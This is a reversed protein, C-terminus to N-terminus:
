SKKVPAGVRKLEVDWLLGTGSPVGEAGRAKFSRNGPVHLRRKGGARMGELGKTWVALVEEIDVNGDVWGDLVESKGICCNVEGREIVKPAAGGVGAQKISFKLEVQQGDKAEDGGSGMALEECDLNGVKIRPVSAAEAKTAQATTKPAKAPTSTAAAAM